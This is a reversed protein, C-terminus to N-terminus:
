FGVDGALDDGPADSVGYYLLVDDKGFGAVLTADQERQAEGSFINLYATLVLSSNAHRQARYVFVLAKPTWRIADPPGIDHVVDRLTTTGITWSVPENLFHDDGVQRAHYTCGAFLLAVLAAALARKM